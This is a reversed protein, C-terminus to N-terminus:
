EISAALEERSFKLKVSVVTVTAVARQDPFFSGLHYPKSLPRPNGILRRQCFPPTDRRLEHSLNVRRMSDSPAPHLIYNAQSLERVM